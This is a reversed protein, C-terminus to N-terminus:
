LSFFFFLLFLYPSGQHKALPSHVKGRIKEMRWEGMRWGWLIWHHHHHCCLSCSGLVRPSPLPLLERELQPVRSGFLTPLNSNSETRRRKRGHPGLHLHLLWFYIVFSEPFVGLSLHEPFNIVILLLCLFPTVLFLSILFSHTIGQFLGKAASVCM